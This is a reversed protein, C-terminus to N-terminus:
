GTRVKALVWNPDRSEVDREFTWIEAVRAIHTPDGELVVGDADTQGSAIDAEFRVSVQARTDDLRADEIEAREIRVLDSVQRRGAAERADIAETWKKNVSASLLSKLLERDGDAFAAVITEYAGRAGTLFAEPEFVGDAARIAEMGAAGPGTFAPRPGLRPAGASERTNASADAPRPQHGTRRGLVMYLRLAFFVAVSAFLIFEILM